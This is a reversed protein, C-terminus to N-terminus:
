QWAIIMIKRLRNGLCKDKMDKMANEIYERIGDDPIQLVKANKMFRALLPDDINDIQINEHVNVVEDGYQM